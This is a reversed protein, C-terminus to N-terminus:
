LNGREQEPVRGRIVILFSFEHLSKDGNCVVLAAKIFQKMQAALYSTM